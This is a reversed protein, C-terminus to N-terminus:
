VRASVPADGPATSGAAGGTGRATATQASQRALPIFSILLLTAGIPILNKDVFPLILDVLVLLPTWFRVRRGAALQIVLALQGLYFLIPGGVYVVPSVGPVAQVRDFLEGMGARDSALFGVVIDITFQAFLAAVGALGAVTSATAFVGRGAMRRMALFVPVFLVMAALFALHGITWAPGPGRSGDLGDIIRIVGYAGLLVPAALFATRTKM